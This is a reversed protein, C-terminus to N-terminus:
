HRALYQDTIAILRERGFSSAHGAHIVTVPLERLRKMTKLYEVVSSGPLQDLLPGDYVADGSFLTGTGAEWLGISGPSHGPLHIIEFSRNGLDITDGDDVLWTPQAPPTKFSRPDFGDRPYATLLIEPLEYGAASLSAKLEGSFDSARLVGWSEPSSLCKAERRHVIRVEFEHMGGMHDYHTHTALAAVSQGFVNRAAERLSALGLGTDILLDIDRGRVYWM